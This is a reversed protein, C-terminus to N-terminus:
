DTRHRYGRMQREADKLQEILDPQGITISDMVSSMLAAEVQEKLEDQRQSIATLLRAVHPAAMLLLERPVKPLPVVLEGVNKWHGDGADDKVWEEQEKVLVIAWGEPTQRYDLHVSHRTRVRTKAQTLVESENSFVSVRAPMDVESEILSREVALAYMRISAIAAALTKANVDIDRLHNDIAEMGPSVSGDENKLAAGSSM